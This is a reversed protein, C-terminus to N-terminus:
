RPKALRFRDADEIVEGSEKVTRLARDLEDAMMHGYRLLKSRECPGHRQLVSKVKLVPKASECYECIRVIDKLREGILQYARQLNDPTVLITSSPSNLSKQSGGLRGLDSSVQFIDALKVIYDQYRSRFGGRLSRSFRREISDCRRHYLDLADETFKFNLPTKAVHDSLLRLSASLTRGIDEVTPELYERRKSKTSNVEVVICRTLFGGELAEPDISNKFSDPTTAAALSVYMNNATVLGGTMTKRQLVPPCDYARNLLEFATNMYSRQDFAKKLLSSVEDVFMMGQPHTSFEGLLAEPTFQEPYVHSVSISRAIELTTSKRARGPEGLLILFMNHRVPFPKLPHVSERGLAQGILALGLFEAFVVPGDTLSRYYSSYDDLWSV